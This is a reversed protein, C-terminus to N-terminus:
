CDDSEVKCEVKCVPCRYGSFFAGNLSDIDTGSCSHAKRRENLRSGEKARWDMDKRRDWGSYRSKTM